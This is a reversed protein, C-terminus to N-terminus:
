GLILPRNAGQGFKAVLGALTASGIVQDDPNVAKSALDRYTLRSNARIEM